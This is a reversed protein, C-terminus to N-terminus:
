SATPASEAYQKRLLQHHETLDEVKLSLAYDMAQEFAGELAAKYKPELGAVGSVEGILRRAYRQGAEGGAWIELDVSPEDRDGQDMAVIVLGTVGDERTPTRYAVEWVGHRQARPGM